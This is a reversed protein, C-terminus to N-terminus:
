PANSSSRILALIWGRFGILDKKTTRTTDVEVGHEILNSDRTARWVVRGALSLKQGQPPIDFNLELNSGIPLEQDLIICTGIPSLNKAEGIILAHASLQIKVDVQIAERRLRRRNHPSNEEKAPTQGRLKKALNILLEIM